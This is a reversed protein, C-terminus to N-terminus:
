SILSTVSWWFSNGKIRLSEITESFQFGRYFWTFFEETKGTVEFCYWVMIQKFFRGVNIAIRKAVSSHNYYLVANMWDTTSAKPLTNALWFFV